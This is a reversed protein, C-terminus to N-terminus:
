RELFGDKTLKEMLAKRLYAAKNMKSEVVAEILANELASGEEIRVSYTQFHKRITALYPKISKNPAKGSFLAGM